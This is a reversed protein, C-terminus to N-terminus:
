NLSPLADAKKAPASSRVLRPALSLAAGYLVFSLFLAAAGGQRLDMALLKLGGLVLIPPVLWGLEPLEWRASGWAGAIAALALIATGTTADMGVAAFPLRGLGSIAAEALVGAIGLIMVVAALLPPLRSWWVRPATPRMTATAAYVAVSVPVVALARTWSAGSPAAVALLAQISEGLFGIWLATALLYLAGHLALTARELQRAALVAAVALSCGAVLLPSGDLLAAAGLLTLVGAATGYFYFNRPHGMRREAFLYAAAYCLAGLVLIAVALGVPSRGHATAVRWAGGYGILLALPAQTMEFVTVQRARLLTRAALSSLYLTPLAVAALFAARPPVAVYGEPLGLPRGVLTVLALTVVDLVLAAPWRLHEWRGDITLTELGIAIALLACATALLDHTSALLAVVTALAMLVLLTAAADLTRRRTVLLGGALYAVLVLLAARPGLLGFRATTEWVLPLAILGSALAHFFASPRDGVRAAHDARFTWCTAYALGLAVGAGSPVLDADTIARILYAGGLVVLTRGILGPTVPLAAWGEGAAEGDGHEAAASVDTGAPPQELRSLRAELDRVQQVLLDIQSELEQLRDSM